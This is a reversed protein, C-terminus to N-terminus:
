PQNENELLAQFHRDGRIADFDAETRAQEIMGTGLQIAQQLHHVAAEVDKQLAACCAQAYHAEADDPNLQIAKFSAADAEAYRQLKRLAISKCVWAKQFDPKLQLSQELGTLAQDYDKLALASKACNYYALSSDPKLPIATTYSAIADAHRDLKRLVGGKGFWAEFSDARISTAQEYAVLAEEYQQLVLLTAAKGLWADYLDPAMALAKDYLAIADEYRSEFFCAYGQKAYDNASFTLQPVASKLAELFTTLMGLRPRAEPSISGQFSRPLIGTLEQITQDKVMEADVVMRQMQLTMQSKLSEVEQEAISIQLKLEDLITRSDSTLDTLQTLAAAKITEIEQISTSQQIRLEPLVEQEVQSRVEAVLEALVSRRLLWIGLAALLPIITLTVLLINLLTTTRGFARDVELEIRDQLEPSRSLSRDILQQLRKELRLQELEQREQLLLPSVTPAPAVTADSSASPQALAWPMPLLNLSLSLALILGLRLIPTAIASVGPWRWHKIPVLQTNTCQANAVRVNCFKM